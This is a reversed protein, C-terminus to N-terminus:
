KTHKRMQQLSTAAEKTEKTYAIIYKYKSAKLLFFYSQLDIYKKGASIDIHHHIHM